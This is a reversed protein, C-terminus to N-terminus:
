KERRPTRAVCLVGRTQYGAERALTALRAMTSGTTMVDDVILLGERECRHKRVLAYSKEANEARAAADLNKQLESHHAHCFLTVMPIDLNKAVLACLLKAQDFGYERVSKPKRPVYTVDFDQVSDGLARVAAESLERALFHQLVALNQHKLTYIVKRSLEGDFEFLHVAFAVTSGLKDPICRCETQRKGCSRCPIRGLKEYELRCKPCFVTERGADPLVTGCLLCKRAFLLGKLFDIMHIM